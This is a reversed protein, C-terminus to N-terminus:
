QIAEDLISLFESVIMATAGWVVHGNIHYYPSFVSFGDSLRIDKEKIVSKDMLVDLPTEIIEQVENSDPIFQMEEITYGIFPFVVYNSPPIYLHTLSGLLSIKQPDAGIEEQSERIATSADDRDGEDRKGGPFSIQTSHVGTYENRKMFVTHWQGNKPYLLILVSSRVPNQRNIEEMSLPTRISPAMRFQAPTGPLDRGLREKLKTILSLDYRM